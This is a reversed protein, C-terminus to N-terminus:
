PVQLLRVADVLFPHGPVASAVIEADGVELRREAVTLWAGAGDADLAAGAEWAVAAGGLGPASVSRRQVLYRGARPVAFRYRAALSEGACAWTFGEGVFGSGDAERRARGDLGYVESDDVVVVVPAHVLVVDAVAREGAADFVKNDCPHNAIGGALSWLTSSGGGDLNIADRCGLARMLHGLEELSLGVATATRGDATLVVLAGDDRVGLATRPHRITRQRDGHDVVAGGRVLMPGAELVDPCGRWDDRNSGFTIAGDRWGVAARVETGPATVEVGGIRRLGRPRGQPTFFGGNVAALAGAAAAQATTPQLREPVALALRTDPVTLDIRLVALSQPGPPMAPADAITLSAFWVRRLEIGVGLEHRQWRASAVQESLTQAFSPSLVAFAAVLPMTRM